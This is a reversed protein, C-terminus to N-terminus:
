GAIGENVSGLTSGRDRAAEGVCVREHEGAGLRQVEALRLVTLDGVQAAAGSGSTSSCGSVAAARPMASASQTSILVGIPLTGPSTGGEVVRQRRVDHATLVAPEFGAILEAQGAERRETRAAGVQIEHEALGGLSGILPLEGSRAWTQSTVRGGPEPM